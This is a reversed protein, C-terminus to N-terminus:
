TYSDYCTALSSIVSSLVSSPAPTAPQAPAEQSRNPILMKPLSIRVQWQSDGARGFTLVIQSQSIALQAYDTDVLLQLSEDQADAVSRQAPLGGVVAGALWIAVFLIQVFRKM